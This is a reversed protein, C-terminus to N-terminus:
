VAPYGPLVHLAPPIAAHGPSLWFWIPGVPQVVRPEVLRLLFVAVLLTTKPYGLAKQLLPMYAGVLLRNLPNRQEPLVRGRIFYGMLVPVLTISIVAAAAM